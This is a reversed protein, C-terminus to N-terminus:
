RAVQGLWHTGNLWRPCTLIKFTQLLTDWTTLSSFWHVLPLRYWADAFLANYYSVICNYCTLPPSPRPMISKEEIKQYRARQAVFDSHEPMEVLFLDFFLTKNIPKRKLPVNVNASCTCDSRVILYPPPIFKLYHYFLILQYIAVYYSM